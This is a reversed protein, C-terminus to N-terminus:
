AALAAALTRVLEDILDDAPRDFPASEDTLLAGVTGFVCWRIRWAVDGFTLHPLVAELHPRLADAVPAFHAAV